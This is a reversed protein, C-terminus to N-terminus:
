PTLLEYIKNFLQPLVTKNLHNEQEENKLSFDPIETLHSNGSHYLEATTKLTYFSQMLDSLIWSEDDSLVSEILTENIHHIYGDKQKGVLGNWHSHSSIDRALAPNEQNTYVEIYGFGWYWESDWKASELWILDNSKNKGILYSDKNFAHTKIKSITKM